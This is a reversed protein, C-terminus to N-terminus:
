GPEGIVEIPPHPRTTELRVSAMPGDVAIFAASDPDYYVSGPVLLAAITDHEKAPVLLPLARLNAHPNAARTATSMAETRLPRAAQHLSPICCAAKGM